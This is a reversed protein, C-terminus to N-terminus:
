TNLKVLGREQLLAGVGICYRYTNSKKLRKLHLEQLSKRQGGYFFWEYVFLPVVSDIKTFNCNINILPLHHQNSNYFDLSLDNYKIINRGKTILFFGMYM